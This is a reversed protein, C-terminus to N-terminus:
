GRALNESEWQFFVNLQEATPDSLSGSNHRQDFAYLREHLWEADDWTMPSSAQTLKIHCECAKWYPSLWFYFFKYLLETNVYGSKAFTGLVQFFDLVDSVQGWKTDTPAFERRQLLLLSAIKRKKAMQEAHFRNHFELILSVQHASRSRRSEAIIAVVSVVVAAVAALPGITNPDLQM